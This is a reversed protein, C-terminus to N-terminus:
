LVIEFLDAFVGCAVGIAYVVLAIIFNQKMPRNVKFLILLGVGSGTLLGALCSGFSIANALYMETIVVSAACNPILGVIASLFPAFFSDKLLIKSLTEEGLYHIATNLLLSVIFIFLIIKVTHHVSSRFIGHECHCKEIECFDRINEEHQTNRRRIIFDVIFGAIIGIIVKIAIIILGKVVASFTDPSAMMIILMEDSTSLFIAILTGLTIVRTAYLSSAMASFGCQPVAGLVGGIVPGFAGAKRILGHTHDTMKHELFELLLFSFFLFPLLKLADLLTDIIVEIM